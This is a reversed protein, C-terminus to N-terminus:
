YIGDIQAVNLVVGDVDKLLSCAIIVHVGQVRQFRRFGVRDKYFVYGNLVAVAEKAVCDILSLDVADRILHCDGLHLFDGSGQGEKVM